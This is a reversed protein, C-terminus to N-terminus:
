FYAKLELYVINSEAGFESQLEPRLFSAGTPRDGSNVMVGFLLDVEDTVSLSLSPQVQFSSDSLSVLSAIRGTLVPLFEYSVLTGLLQRSVNTTTGTVVRYMAADLDNAEGAGNYFYETEIQLSNEFRHGLGLVAQLHDEVLEGSLGSPLPRFGDAALWAAELRVAIPGIEGSTAGGVQHGGYVKGGQAALDWGGVTTFARALLSSGYWSSHWADDDGVYSGQADVERGAVAVLNLGSLDGLPVDFRLGDVGAKYDRDFQRPDFPLFVDLPNWFYAKGFTIAQRGATIDVWSLSLRANLRDVFLSAVAHGDELWDSALDLAQYRVASPVLGAGPASPATSTTSYTLGQALHVEYSVWEKPRGAATLRLLSLSMFDSDNSEGYFPEFDYNDLGLAITRFSGDLGFPGNSDGTLAWTEAAAVLCVSAVIGVHRPSLHRGVTV